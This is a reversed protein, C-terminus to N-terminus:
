KIVYHIHDSESGSSIIRINDLFWYTNQLGILTYDAAKQLEASMNTLGYLGTKFRYTDTSEDCNIIFNCHKATDKQLHLQNHAYKLDITLSINTPRDTYKNSTTFNLRNVNRLKVKSVKQIPENLVKSDIALKISQDENLTIVTFSICNEDSCSVLKKNEGERQLRELEATVRPQLNIPVGRCKKVTATFNQHFISKVVHTKSLGIKSVLEPFQSANGTKIQM